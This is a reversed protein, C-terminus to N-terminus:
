SGPPHAREGDMRIEGREALDACAAEILMRASDRDLSRDERQVLPVIESLTFPGQALRGRVLRYMTESTLRSCISDIVFQLSAM